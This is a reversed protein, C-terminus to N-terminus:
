SDKDNINQHILKIKKRDKQLNCCRSAKHIMQGVRFTKREACQFIQYTNRKIRFCTHDHM